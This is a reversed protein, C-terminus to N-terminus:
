AAKLQKLITWTEGRLRETEAQNMEIRVNVRDMEAFIEALTTKLDAEPEIGTDLTLTESM